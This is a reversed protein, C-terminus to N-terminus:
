LNILQIPHFFISFLTNLLLFIYYLISVYIFPFKLYCSFLFKSFFSILPYIFFPTLLFKLFFICFRTFIHHLHSFRCKFSIWSFFFFCQDTLEFYYLFLNPLFSSSMYYFFHIILPLIFYELHHNKFFLICSWRLIFISNLFYYFDFYFLSFFSFISHFCEFRLILKM